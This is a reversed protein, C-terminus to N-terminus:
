ATRANLWTTEGEENADRKDAQNRAKANPLAVTEYEKTLKEALIEDKAIALAFKSALLVVLAETMSASYKSPDDGDSIYEIYASDEDANSLEDTFLKGNAIHYDYSETRNEENTQRVMAKFDGPLNFVYDWDAMINEGHTGTLNSGTLAAGLEAFHSEEHWHWRELVL